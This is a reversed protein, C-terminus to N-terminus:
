THMCYISICRCTDAIRVERTAPQQGQPRLQPLDQQVGEGWLGAWWQLQDLPQLATAGGDGAGRPHLIAPAHLVYMYM